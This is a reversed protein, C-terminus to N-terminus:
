ADKYIRTFIRLVAEIDTNKHETAGDTQPHYATSLRTTIRLMRCITQWVDGVFQSGRDSVILRPLSHHKYIHEIFIKAVDEAKISEMAFLRAEKILWDTIVYINM